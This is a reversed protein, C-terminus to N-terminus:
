KSKKILIQQQAISLVNNVLWYVVLGSPFNLFLFTFIVPMFMMIKAQTPDGMPPALRQQLFMSAGMI